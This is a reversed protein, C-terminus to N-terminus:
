EDPRNRDERVAETARAALVLVRLALAHVAGDEELDFKNHLRHHGAELEGLLDGTPGDDGQRGQGRVQRLPYQTPTSM